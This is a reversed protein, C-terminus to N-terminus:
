SVCIAFVQGGFQTESCMKLPIHGEGESFCRRSTIHQFKDTLDMFNDLVECGTTIDGSYLRRTATVVIHLCRLLDLFM